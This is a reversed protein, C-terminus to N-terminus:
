SFPRITWSEAPAHAHYTVDIIVPSGNEALGQPRPVHQQAIIQGDRELNVTWWDDARGEIAGAFAKADISIAETFTQFLSDLWPGDELEPGPSPPIGGALVYPDVRKSAFQVGAYREYDRLSREPGLGYAGLDVVDSLGEFGLLAKLRRQATDGLFAHNSVASETHDDWHKPASNRNYEHWCIIEPPCFLDYGHSYARVATNTEEGLFYIEPDPVIEEIFKGISFAFHGSFFRSPVPRDYQDPDDMIGCGMSISGRETFRHFDIRTVYQEFKGTEPIYPPAYTTLIPKPASLTGLMEILKADWGEVFRMHSDLQLVFDQGGYRQACQNRAWTCGLSQQYPVDIVTVRPDDAFRGISESPSHQWCVCAHVDDPWRAKAFLDALTACLEPDRYSPIAVFISM